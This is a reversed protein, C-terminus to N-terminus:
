LGLLVDKEGGREDGAAGGRFVTPADAILSTGPPRNCKGARRWGGLTERRPLPPLNASPPVLPLASRRGHGLSEETAAVLTCSSPCTTRCGGADVTHVHLSHFVSELAKTHQKFQADVVSHFVSEIFTSFSTTYQKLQSQLIGQMLDIYLKGRNATTTVSSLGSLMRSPAKIINYGIMM